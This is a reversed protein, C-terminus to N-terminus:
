YTNNNFDFSKIVDLGLKKTHAAYSKHNIHNIFTILIPYKQENADVIASIDEVTANRYIM